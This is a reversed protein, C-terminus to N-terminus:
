PRKPSTRDFWLYQWAVVLTTFDAGTRTSAGGSYAIKVSQRTGAPLSLTAGLRANNQRASPPGGDVRVDAGGYWTADVAAWAGRTVNYSAHGQVVFLPDQRRTSDGQYFRDNATFLWVGGALDLTWRGIPHSFGMEPKFAWRNTGINILKDPDYQGTPAVISLSTGLTMKQERQRFEKPTLAIQRPWRETPIRAVVEDRTLDVVAVRYTAVQAAMDALNKRQASESLESGSASIKRAASSTAKLAEDLMRSADDLRQETLAQKAAEFSMRGKEILAASDLDTSIAAKKAAPSNVLMDLLRIKQEILKQRSEINGPGSSQALGLNLLGLLLVVFTFSKKM